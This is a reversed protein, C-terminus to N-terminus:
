KTILCVNVESFYIIKCVLAGKTKLFQLRRCAKRVERLVKFAVVSLAAMSIVEKVLKDKNTFLLDLLDLTAVSM